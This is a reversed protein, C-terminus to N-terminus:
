AKPTTASEVAALVRAEAEAILASLDEGKWGDVPWLEKLEEDLLRHAASKLNPFYGIPNAEDWKEQKAQGAYPGRSVIGGAQFREIVWNHEDRCRIRLKM